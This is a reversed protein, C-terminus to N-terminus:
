AALPVSPRGLSLRSALAVVIVPAALVALLVQWSEWKLTVGLALANNFAHVGMGPLLSGTRYYLYALLFGLIALPPLFIASTGGAHVLGFMVGSVVAGLVWGKWRWLAGFLFGRFFTEEVIPAAVTVLLTVAVLAVAGDKAGLTEALDDQESVSFVVAYIATAVYFAVFIAAAWLLGRKLGVRRWGLTGLGGPGRGLRAFALAALFLFADQVFTATLTLEPGDANGGIIAALVGFAVVAGALAAFLAVFPAWWVFLLPAHEPGLVADVPLQEQPDPGAPERAAPDAPPPAADGFAPAQPRAWLTRGQEDSAM